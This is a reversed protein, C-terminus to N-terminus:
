QEAVFQFQLTLSAASAGVSLSLNGNAALNITAMVSNSQTGLFLDAAPRFGAPLNLVVTSAATTGGKILGTVYVVGNIRRYQCNRYPVGFNIWGGTLTPSIWGTDDSTARWTTGEYLWVKDTATVYCELGDRLVPTALATRDTDLNVIVRNEYKATWDAWAKFQATPNFADTGTPIPAGSATTYM